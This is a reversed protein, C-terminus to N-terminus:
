MSRTLPKVLIVSRYAKGEWRVRDYFEYGCRSYYARLDNAHEATDCAIFNCGARAALEELRSLLEFGVGRGQLRPEVAFQGFHSGGNKCYVAARSRRLPILYVTGTAVIIGDILAIVTDGRQLREFTTIDGQTAASYNWGKAALPAYARHLLSTISSVEYHDFASDAPRHEWIIASHM